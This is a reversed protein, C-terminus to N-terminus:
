NVTVPLPCVRWVITHWFKVPPHEKPVMLKMHNPLYFPVSFFALIILYILGISVAPTVVPPDFPRLSFMSFGIAPNIAQPVRQLTTRPISNNALVQGAWMEGFKSLIETQLSTLQPLLYDYVTDQDRAELWIVQCAGLPDYSVNGTEVAAQLLATANPNIVIAGWAHEDYVANRVSVPDKNYDTANMTIYGLHPMSNTAVIQETMQTILPGVLPTTDTYPPVQGDFDVVYVILNPLNEEVRYLVGWFFSLVLM